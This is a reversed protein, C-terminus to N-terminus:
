VLTANQKSTNTRNHPDTDRDDYWAMLENTFSDSVIMQGKLSDNLLSSNPSQCSNVSVEPGMPRGSPSLAVSARSSQGANHHHVPSTMNPVPTSTTQQSSRHKQSYKYFDELEFPKEEEWYPQFHGVSVVTVEVGNGSPITPSMPIAPPKSASDGNISKNISAISNRNVNVTSSIHLPIPTPAPSALPPTPTPLSQPPSPTASSLARPTQPASANPAMNVVNVYLEKASEHNAISNANRGNIAKSPNSHLTQLITQKTESNAPLVFDLSTETWTKSTKPAPPPFPQDNKVHSKHTPMSNMASKSPTVSRPSMPTQNESRMVIPEEFNFLTKQITKHNRHQPMLSTDIADLCITQPSICKNTECYMRSDCPNVLPSSIPPLYKPSLCENTPITPLPRQALHTSTLCPSMPPGMEPTETRSVRYSPYHNRYHIHHSDYSPSNPNPYGEASGQSSTRRRQSNDLSNSRNLQSTKNENQLERHNKNVVVVSEKPANVAQRLQTDDQSKIAISTRRNPVSYLNSSENLHISTEYKNVYPSLLHKSKQEGIYIVSANTGGSSSGASSANDAFDTNLNKLMENSEEDTDYDFTPESKAAASRPRQIVQVRNVLSTVSPSLPRVRSGHNENFKNPTGPVSSSYLSASRKMLIQKHNRETVFFKNLSNECKEQSEDTSHSINDESLDETSQNRRSKALKSAAIQRRVVMLRGELDKLKALSQQYAQKRQKRVNKKPNVDKALKSAASVIKSQIEFELELKSLIEEEKTKPKLLLKDNLTFATGVRRRIQPMPENANLPTEPPLEGTLEGEKLCLAKLEALKKNMAEELAEKRVKLTEFMEKEKVAKNSELQTLTEDEIRLTPLSHASLSRRSTTLSNARSSETSSVTSSNLESAIQEVTRPSTLCSKHSNRRDIYFQHQAIAMSWICKTLVASAAFWVYVTVNCPGFTRRSVSVRSTTTM